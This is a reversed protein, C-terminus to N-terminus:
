KGNVLSVALGGGISLLFGLLQLATIGEGLLLWALMLTMLPGVSSIIAFKQPGARKLGAGLLYSPLITGVIAIMVAWGYVGTPQRTLDHIPKAILVHAIVMMGSAGSVWSTFRAAGVRKVVPGSLLIFAAYPVASTFVLAAGLMVHHPDTTPANAEGIYAIVVGGYAVGCAAAVPMRLHERGTLWGGIVVLSPYTYLLIRELGASIYQLGIFNVLSSLYYGLFGLGLMQWLDTRTLPNTSRRSCVWATAIFLPTAILMRLGLVTLADAGVAYPSKAFVGKCSFCVASGAVIAYTVM